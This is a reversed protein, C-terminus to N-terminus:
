SVRAFTHELVLLIGSLIACCVVFVVFRRPFSKLAKGDEAETFFASMLVIAFSVVLFLLVHVSIDKM